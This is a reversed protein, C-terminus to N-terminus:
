TRSSATQHGFQRLLERQRETLNRPIRVQVEVFHDGQRGDPGRVGRGKLRLKQGPQTGPPAKVRVTGHMTDVELTAGLAAEVMDLEATSFVDLGKRRFLPHSQVQVELILDGNQAGGVGPEGMGGLRLKQGSEIGPPINVELSTEQEAVGSGRCIACPKQIVRGRGFCQPCPQSVSFGGLGRAVM